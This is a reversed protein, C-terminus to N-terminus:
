FNLKNVIKTGKIWVTQDERANGKAFEENRHTRQTTARKDM